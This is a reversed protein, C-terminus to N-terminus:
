VKFERACFYTVILTRVHTHMFGRSKLNLLINVYKRKICFRPKVTNELM